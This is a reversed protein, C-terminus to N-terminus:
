RRGGSKDRCDIGACRADGSLKAFVRLSIKRKEGV